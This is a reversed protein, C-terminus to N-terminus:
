YRTIGATTEYIKLGVVSCGIDLIGFLFAFVHISVSGNTASVLIFGHLKFGHLGNLTIM